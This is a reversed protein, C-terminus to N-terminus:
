GSAAVWEQDNPSWRGQRVVGSLVPALLAAAGAHAAPIDAPAGVARALERFAPWWDDPPTPLLKPIPHTDRMRFTSKVAERLRDADLPLLDAVLVLDVLDKVRTSSRDGDYIRTYAHLKEAVQVELAVAAVTPPEVDAFALVNPTELWEVELVSRRRLGVDLQFSDFPREALSAVVRFRHSQGLREPPTGAREVTFAFFDGADHRAVDIVADFLEDAPAQWDLDIDKTARSREPLRLELALGGKLIWRDGATAEMRAMLRYFLVRRRANVLRSDDGAAATRLRQELAQRFASADRYRM